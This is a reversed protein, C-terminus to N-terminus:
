PRLGDTRLTRLMRGIIFQSYGDPNQNLQELEDDTFEIVLKYDAGAATGIRVVLAEEEPRLLRLDTGRHRMVVISVAIEPARPYFSLLADRAETVLVGPLRRRAPPMPVPKFQRMAEAVEASPACSLGEQAALQPSLDEGNTLELRRRAEDRTRENM